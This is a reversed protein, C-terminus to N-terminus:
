ERRPPIITEKKYLQLSSTEKEIELEDYSKRIIDTKM